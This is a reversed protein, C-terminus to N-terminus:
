EKENQLQRIKFELMQIRHNIAWYEKELARWFERALFYVLSAIILILINGVNSLVWYILEQLRNM